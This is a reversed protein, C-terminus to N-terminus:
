GRRVEEENSGNRMVWVSLLESALPSEYVRWQTAYSDEGVTVACASVEVTRRMRTGVYRYGMGDREARWTWLPAAKRMAALTVSARM